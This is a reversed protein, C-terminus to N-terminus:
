AEAGRMMGTGAQEMGPPHEPVAEGSLSGSHVGDGLHEEAGGLVRM